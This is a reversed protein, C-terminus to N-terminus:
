GKNHKKFFLSVVGFILCVVVVFRIKGVMPKGNHVALEKCAMEIKECYKVFAERVPPVFKPDMEQPWSPSEVAGCVAVRLTEHRV